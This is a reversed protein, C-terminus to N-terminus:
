FVRVKHIQEHHGSVSDYREDLLSFMFANGVDESPLPPLKNPPVTIKGLEERTMEKLTPCKMDFSESVARYLKEDRDFLESQWMAEIRRICGICTYCEKYENNSLIPNQCSWTLKFLEKPISKIVDRKCLHDIPFEWKANPGAVIQFIGNARAQNLSGVETNDTAIRGTYLTNGFGARVLMAGHLAWVYHDVCGVSDSRM